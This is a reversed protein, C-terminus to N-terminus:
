PLEVQLDRQWWFDHQSDSFLVLAKGKPVYGRLFQRVRACENEFKQQIADHSNHNEAIERFLSEVKTEFGRNLNAANSQDVNVYLSLICSDPGPQYHQLQRIDDYSIM